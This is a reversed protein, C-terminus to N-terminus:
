ALNQLEYFNPFQNGDGWVVNQSKADDVDLHIFSQGWGIRTIGVSIAAQAIEYRMDDTIASIDAALGKIHSSNSVGGVKENYEPGRYGSTIVLPFGVIERVKDLKKIFDTNMYKAGSGPLGPQDFESYTFYIFPSKSREMIYRIIRYVLFIAAAILAIYIYPKM